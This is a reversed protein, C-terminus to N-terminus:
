PWLKNDIYLGKIVANGNDSVSVKIEVSGEHFATDIESGSGEPIFYQELGYTINIKENGRGSYYDESSIENNVTASSIKGKICILGSNKPNEEHVSDLLWYGGSNSLCTFVNKGVTPKFSYYYSRIESIEPFTYTIYDGRLPDKPDVPEIQLLVSTGGGSISIKIIIVVLIILIQAMFAIYFKKQNSLPLSFM